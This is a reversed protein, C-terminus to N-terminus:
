RYEGNGWVPPLPTVLNAAVPVKRFGRTSFTKGWSLTFSRQWTGPLAAGNVNWYQEAQQKMPSGIVGVNFILLREAHQTNPAPLRCGPNDHIEIELYGGNKKLYSRVANAQEAPNGNGINQGLTNVPVPQKTSKHLLRVNGFQLDSRNTTGAANRYAEIYRRSWPKLTLSQPKIEYLNLEFEWWEGAGHDLYMCKEHWDLIPPEVFSGFTSASYKMMYFVRFDHGYVDGDRVGHNARMSELSWQSMAIGGAVVVRSEGPDNRTTATGRVLERSYTGM